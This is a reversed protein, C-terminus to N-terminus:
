LHRRLAGTARHAHIPVPARWQRVREVAGLGDRLEEAYLDKRM